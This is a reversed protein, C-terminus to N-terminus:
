REVMLELWIALYLWTASMKCYILIVKSYCKLSQQIEQNVLLVNPGDSETHFRIPPPVKTHSVRQIGLSIKGYTARMQLELFCIM